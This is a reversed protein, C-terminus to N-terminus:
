HSLNMYDVEHCNYPPNAIIYDPVITNNTKFLDHANSRIHYELFDEERFDDCATPNRNILDFGIVFKGRRKWIDTMEGRGICPDLVINGDPKISILREALFDAIYGPTSYYGEERRDKGFDDMVLKAHRGM